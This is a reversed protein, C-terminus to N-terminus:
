PRQEHRATDEEADGENDADLGKRVAFTNDPLGKKPSENLIEVLTDFTKNEKRFKAVVTNKAGGIEAKHNLVARIVAEHSGAWYIKLDKEMDIGHM